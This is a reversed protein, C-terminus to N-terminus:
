LPSERVFMSWAAGPAMLSDAPAPSPSALKAAIYAGRRRLLDLREFWVENVADFPWDHDDPDIPHNQVYALGRVDAPISDGGVTGAEGRWRASFEAASWRPNRRGFSMMKLREGGGAWREALYDAGRLVVEEAVVTPARNDALARDIDDFWQISVAAFPSPPFDPDDIPLGLTTRLAPQVGIDEPSEDYFRIVKVTAVPSGTGSRPALGAGRERAPEPHTPTV